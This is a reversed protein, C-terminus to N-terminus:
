DAQTQIQENLKILHAFFFTVKLAFGQQIDSDQIDDVFHASTSNTYRSSQIISLTGFISEWITKLFRNEFYKKVNNAFKLWKNIKIFISPLVLDIVHRHVWLTLWVNVSGKLVSLTVQYM